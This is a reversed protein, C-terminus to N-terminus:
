SSWGKVLVFHTRHHKRVGNDREAARRKRGVRVRYTEGGDDTGIIGARVEDVFPARISECDVAGALIIVNTGAAYVNSTRSQQTRFTGDSPTTTAMSGITPKEAHFNCRM